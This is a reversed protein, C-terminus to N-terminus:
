RNKRRKAEKAFVTNQLTAELGSRYFNFGAEAGLNEDSGKLRFAGLLGKWCAEYNQEHKQAVEQMKHRFVEIDDDIRIAPFLEIVGGVFGFEEQNSLLVAFSGDPVRSNQIYINLGVRYTSENKDERKLISLGGKPLENTSFCLATIEGNSLSWTMVEKLDTQCIESLWLSSSEFLSEFIDRATEPYIL